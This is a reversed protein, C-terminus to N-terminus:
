EQRLVDTTEEEEEDFFEPIEVFTAPFAAREILIAAASLALWFLLIQRSGIGILLAVPLVSWISLCFFCEFVGIRHKIFVQRM